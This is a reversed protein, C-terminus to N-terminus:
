TNKGKENPKQNWHDAEARAMRKQAATPHAAGCLIGLREEFRYAWESVRATHEVPRKMGKTTNM